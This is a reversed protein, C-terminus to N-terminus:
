FFSLHLYDSGPDAERLFYEMREIIEDTECEMESLCEMICFKEDDDNLADLTKLKDIAKQWDDKSVEFDDDWTEGSYDAGLASLLDHFESTKYNFADGLSYQVDYKKAVHLRHGM